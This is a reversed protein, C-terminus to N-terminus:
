QNTLMAVYTLLENLFLSRNVVFVVFVTLFLAYYM